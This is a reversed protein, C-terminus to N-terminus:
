EFVLSFDSNNTVPVIATSSSIYGIDNDFSLGPTDTNALNPVNCILRDGAAGITIAFAGVTNNKSRLTATRLDTDTGRYEIDLSGERGQYEVEEHNILNTHAFKSGPSFKVSKAIVSEGYFNCASVSQKAIETPDKTGSLDVGTPKAELTPDQYIGEGKFSAKRFGGVSFDFTLEGRVGLVTHRYDGIQWIVAMSGFTASVPTYTVRTAAQTVKAMASALLVPDCPPAVGVTDATILYFDFEVTTKEGVTLSKKSGEVGNIDESQKKEFVPMVKINHAGIANSGAITPNSNYSAESKVFILQSKERLITEPM